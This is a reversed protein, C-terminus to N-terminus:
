KDYIILVFEHNLFNNWMQIFCMAFSSKKSMKLMQSCLELSFVSHGDLNAENIFNNRRNGSQLM